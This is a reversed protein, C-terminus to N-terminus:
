LFDYRIMIQGLELSFNVLYSFIIILELKAKDVRVHGWFVM